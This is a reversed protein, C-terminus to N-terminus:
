YNAEFYKVFESISTFTKNDRPLTFVKNEYKFFVCKDNKYFYYETNSFQKVDIM